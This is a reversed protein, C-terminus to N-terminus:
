GYFALSLHLLLLLLLLEELGARVEEEIGVALVNPEYTEWGGVWGGVVWTWDYRGGGRGGGVWLKWCRMGVAESEEVKGDGM